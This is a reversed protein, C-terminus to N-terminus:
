EQKTDSFLWGRVHEVVAVLRDDDIRERYTASMDSSAPAHGMIAQVAALDHVGEAVTQFAHRAAYFSLGQREIKAGHLVRAIEQHVREGRGKGIYSAGAQGIFLLHKDAADKPSHREDLAAMIAKVTEPWLPVHRAIGTKPRPYDLWGTKLNVAKAPLKACDTNGMGANVGLLLMARANTTAHQLAALLEEREFMRLGGKARNQRMVKASPKKFGPGFRVPHEILAADYAYKFVSRVRQIENGTRVPGWDRAMQERLRRFDDGVLGVIRRNGGFSAVLRQCGEYYEQFTRAAIEGSALLGRKFTLYHNCGDAVTPGNPGGKPAPTRGALLDDKEALWRELAAQPDAWPGFYHMRGRIKKAWVGAAHPFLPFDKHPKAPPKTKPM